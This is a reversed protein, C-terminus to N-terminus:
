LASPLPAARAALRACRGRCSGCSRRQCRRADALMQQRREPGPSRRALSGSAETARAVMLEWLFGTQFVLSACRLEQRSCPSASAGAAGAWVGGVGLRRLVPVAGTGARLGGSGRGHGACGREPPEAVHISSWSSTRVDGTPEPYLRWRLSSLSRPENRRRQAEERVSCLDRSRSLEM